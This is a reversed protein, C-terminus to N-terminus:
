VVASLQSSQISVSKSRLSTARNLNIALAPPLEEIRDQRVFELDASGYWTGWLLSLAFFRHESPNLGM